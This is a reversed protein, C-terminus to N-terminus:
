KPRPGDYFVADAESSRKRRTQHRCKACATGRDVYAKLEDVTLVAGGRM